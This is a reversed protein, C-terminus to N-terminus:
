QPGGPGGAVTKTTTTSKFADYVLRSARYDGLFEANDAEHKTYSAEDAWVVVITNTLFDPSTNVAQSVFGPAARALAEAEDVIQKAEASVDYFFKTKTDPRTHTYTVTLMTM